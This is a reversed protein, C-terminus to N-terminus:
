DGAWAAMGGTDLSLDEYFRNLPGFDFGSVLDSLSPSLRLARMAYSPGIGRRTTGIASAGRAEEVKADLEKDVPTVLSCRGDVVLSGRVEAPLLSLEEALVVPDVVVGAGVLLQKGKLAGSPILHFTHKRGGIVVTHGANSGGNFRAVADYGGALYDVLKGKGEDGWQLGM